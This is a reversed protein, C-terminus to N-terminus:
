YLVYFYLKDTTKNKISLGGRDHLYQLVGLLLGAGLGYVIGKKLYYMKPMGGTFGMILAGTAIGAGTEPLIPLQWYHEGVGKSVGYAFSVLAFKSAMKVGETVLGSIMRGNRQRVFFLVDARTKPPCTLSEVTYRRAAIRGGRLGGLMFGIIATGYVLSQVGKIEDIFNTM